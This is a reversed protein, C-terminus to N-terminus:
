WSQQGDSGVTGETRQTCILHDTRHQASLGFLNTKIILVPFVKVKLQCSKIEPIVLINIFFSNDWYKQIIQASEGVTSVKRVGQWYLTQKVWISASNSSSFSIPNINAAGCSIVVQLLEICSGLELINSRLYATLLCWTSVM